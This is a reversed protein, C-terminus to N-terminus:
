FVGGGGGGFGGSGPGGIDGFSGTDFGSTGFDSSNLNTYFTNRINYLGWFYVLSVLDYDYLTTEPINRFEIYKKM